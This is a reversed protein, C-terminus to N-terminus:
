EYDATTREVLKCNRRVEAWAPPAGCPKPRQRDATISPVVSTVQASNNEVAKSKMASAQASTDAISLVSGQTSGAAALSVSANNVTKSKKIRTRTTSRLNRNTRLSIRPFLFTDM